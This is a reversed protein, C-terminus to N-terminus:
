LGVKRIGQAAEFSSRPSPAFGWFGNLDVRDCISLRFEMLVVVESWCLSLCCLPEVVDSSLSLM